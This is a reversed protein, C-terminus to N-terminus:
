NWLDLAVLSSLFFLQWRIPICLVNMTGEEHSWHISFLEPFVQVSQHSFVLDTIDLTSGERPTTHVFPLHVSAVWWWLRAEWKLKVLHQGSHLCSSRKQYRRRSKLRQFFSRFCRTQCNLNTSARCSTPTNKSPVMREKLTAAFSRLTYTSFCRMTAYM